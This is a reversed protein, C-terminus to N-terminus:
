SWNEEVFEMWNEKATNRSARIPVVQGTPVCCLYTWFFASSPSQCVNSDILSCVNIVRVMNNGLRHAPDGPHLVHQFVGWNRIENTNKMLFCFLYLTRSFHLRELVASSVHFFSLSSLKIDLVVPRWYL